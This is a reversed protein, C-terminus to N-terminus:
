TKNKQKKPLPADKACRFGMTQGAYTASTSARMAYRLFTAYDAPDISGLSGAACFLENDTGSADKRSAGTLLVSNFDEVWEWIVGHMGSIGWYNAELTTVSPLPLKSPKGYWDLIKQTFEPFSTADAVDKGARAAFEWELMSPLRKGEARCYARAAFWSVHTLPADVPANPGLRLPQEFHRLYDEDAFVRPLKGRLFRQNKLLFRLYDGNTVPLADLLFPRVSEPKDRTGYLPVFTGGAVRVMRGPTPQTRKTTTALALAVLLQCVVLVSLACPLRLSPILRKTSPSAGQHM